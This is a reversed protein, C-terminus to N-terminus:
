HQFNVYITHFYNIKSILFCLGFIWKCHKEKKVIKCLMQTLFYVGLLGFFIGIMGNIGDIFFGYKGLNSILCKTLYNAENQIGGDIKYFRITSFVDLSFIFLSIWLFIFFFNDYKKRAFAYLGLITFFLSLFSGIIYLSTYYKWLIDLM